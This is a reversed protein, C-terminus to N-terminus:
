TRRDDDRRVPPCDTLAPVPWRYKPQTRSWPTPKPSIGAAVRATRAQPASFITPPSSTGHPTVYHSRFPNRGGFCTRARHRGPRQRAGGPGVDPRLLAKRSVEGRLVTSALKPSARSVQAPLRGVKGVAVCGGRSDDCRLYNWRAGCCPQDVRVSYEFLPVPIIATM